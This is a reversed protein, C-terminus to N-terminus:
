RRLGKILLMGFEDRAVVAAPDTIVPVAGATAVAVRLDVRVM